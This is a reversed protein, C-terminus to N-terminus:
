PPIKGQLAEAAGRWIALCKSTVVEAEQAAIDIPASSKTDIQARACPAALVGLLTALTALGGFTTRATM